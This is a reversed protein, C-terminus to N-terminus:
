ITANMQEQLPSMENMMILMFRLFHESEKNGNYKASTLKIFGPIIAWSITLLLVTCLFELLEVDFCVDCDNEVVTFEEFSTSGFPYMAYQGHMPIYHYHINNKLNCQKSVTNHENEM